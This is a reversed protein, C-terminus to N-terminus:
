SIRKANNTARTCLSIARRRFALTGRRKSPKFSFRDRAFGTRLAAAFLASRRHRKPWNWHGQGRLVSTLRGFTYRARKQYHAKSSVPGAGPAWHYAHWARLAENFFFSRLSRLALLAVRSRRSWPFLKHDRSPRRHTPTAPTAATTTFTPAASIITTHSCFVRRHPPHRSSLCLYSTHVSDM